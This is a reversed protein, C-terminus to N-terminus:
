ASRRGARGRMVDALSQPLGGPGKSIHRM